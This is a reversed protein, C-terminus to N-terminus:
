LVTASECDLLLDGEAANYDHITLDESLHCNFTDAGPGGFWHPSDLSAGAEIYDNGEGGHASTADSSQIYDNGAEGNAQVSGKVFIRDNNNGAYITIPEEYEAAAHIEDMGGFGYIIARSHKLDVFDDGSGGNIFNPLDSDTAWDGTAYIVDNGFSGYLRNGGKWGFISDDGEHGYVRDNGQGGYLKDNGEFGYIRDDGGKGFITDARSTGELVDNGETGNITAAFAAM